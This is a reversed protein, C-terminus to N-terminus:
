PVGKDLQVKPETPAQDNDNCAALALAGIVAALTLRRRM